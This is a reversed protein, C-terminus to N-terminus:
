FTRDNEPNNSKKSRKRGPALVNARYMSEQYDEDLEHTRAFAYPACLRVVVAKISRSIGSGSGVNSYGPLPFLGPSRVIASSAAIPVTKEPAPVRACVGTAVQRVDAHAWEGVKYVLRRRLAQEAGPLV